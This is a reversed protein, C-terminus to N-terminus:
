VRVCVFVSMCVYACVCVFVYECACECRVYTKVKNSYTIFACHYSALMERGPHSLFMGPVAHNVRIVSM